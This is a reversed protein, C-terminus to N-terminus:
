YSEGKGRTNRWGIISFLNIAKTRQTKVTRKHKTANEPDSSTLGLHKGLSDMASSLRKNVKAEEASETTTEQNSVQEETAVSADNNNKQEPTVDKATSPNKNGESDVALVTNAVPQRSDAAEEIENKLSLNKSM